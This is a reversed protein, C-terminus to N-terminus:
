FIRREAMAKFITLRDMAELSSGVPIGRSLCTIKLLRDEGLVGELKRAIFAATAEGEPTQNLALIIEKADLKVRELLQEITLDEPGVGELPCLAGGLVHYVGQYAGTKEIACLDHWTEVVCITQRDRITGVCWSCDKDREKFAFCISCKVTHKHAAELIEIFQEFRREDMDLFHHAVRYLNKSALYPVQQLQRLLQQLRPLHDMM